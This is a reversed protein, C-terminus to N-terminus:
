AGAREGDGLRALGEAGDERDGHVLQGLLLLAQEDRSGPDANYVVLLQGDSGLIELTDYGLTLEGVLPNRYRKRGATKNRVDQRAWLRRFEPSKLSLEGVLETLRPDDLDTGVSARLAAVTDARVKELEPYCAADSLFTERVVNRGAVFAPSLAGALRNAALVDLYRGTIFAPEDMREVLRRLAPRVQEVRRRPRRRAPRDAALAHLHALAEEDLDLVRGLADLVQTSPHRDRGQELRVLYDISIGALLALEERRLGPTRRRPGEPLGVSGPTVLERRARIFRGLANEM